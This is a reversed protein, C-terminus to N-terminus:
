DADAPDDKDQYSGIAQGRLTEYEDETIEGQAKMRRLDALTWLGSSSADESTGLYWRRLWMCVLWLAVLLVILVGGWLFLDATGDSRALSSQIQAVFQM